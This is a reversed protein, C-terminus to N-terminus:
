LVARVKKMPEGPIGEAYAIAYSQPGGSASYWLRWAGRGLPEARTTFNQVNGAEWPETAELVIGHKQWNAAACPRPSAANYATRCGLLAVAASGTSFELFRRRSILNAEEPYLNKGAPHATRSEVYGFRPWKM